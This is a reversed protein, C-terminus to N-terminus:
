RRISDKEKIKGILLRNFCIPGHFKKRKNIPMTKDMTSQMIKNFEEVAIAVSDEFM